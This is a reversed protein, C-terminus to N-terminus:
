GNLILGMFQKVEAQSSPVPSHFRHSSVGMTLAELRMRQLTDEMRKVCAQFEPSAMIIEELALAKDDAISANSRTVQLTVNDM